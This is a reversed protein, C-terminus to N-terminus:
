AYQLFRLGRLIRFFRLKPQLALRWLGELGARQLFVPARPLVGAVFDLSGGAGLAWGVGANELESRHQELWFEQKPAGFAVILVAPRYTTIQRLIERDMDDSLPYPHMAPSYGAVLVGYRSRLRQQAIQNIEPRAGLLFVRYGRIAAMDCLDYVFDSGSIKEIDKCGTRWRALVYPWQGDLTAFNDNIINSLRKDRNAEVIIEANVTVILKLRGDDKLLEERRLGRFKLNAFQIDIM